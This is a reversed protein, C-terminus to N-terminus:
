ESSLGLWSGSKPYSTLSAHIAPTPDPWSSQPHEPPSITIMNETKSASGSLRPVLRALPNAGFQIMQLMPATAGKM